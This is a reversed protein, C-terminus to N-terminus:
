NQDKEKKSKEKNVKEQEEKDTEEYTRQDLAESMNDELESLYSEIEWAIKRDRIELEVGGILDESTKFKLHASKGSIDKLAKEAKQQLDQPIKFRSVITAEQKSQELSQKIQEREKGELNQIRRLFANCIHRELQEDALDKLAKRATDFVQEGARRRLEQLFIEKQRQLSEQWHKQTQNVEERAKQILEKKKNEAENKAQSILDEQKEQMEKRKEQYSEMEEEAEKKKMDAEEIRNAIRNEREDMVKVIRKYLFHRLLLVLIIFNIIQAIFTFTDFSM